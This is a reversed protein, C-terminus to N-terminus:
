AYSTESERESSCLCESGVKFLGERIGFRYNLPSACPWCSGSEVEQMTQNWLEPDSSVKWPCHFKSRERAANEELEKVTMMAPTFKKPWLHWLNTVEIEGVLSSGAIFEDVVGMDEYRMSELMEKWVSINKGELVKAVDAHMAAHLATESPHLQRM